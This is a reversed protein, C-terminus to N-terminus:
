WCRPELGVASQACQAGAAEVDPVKGGPATSFQLVFERTTFRRRATYGLEASEVCTNELSVYWIVSYSQPATTNTVNTGAIGFFTGDPSPPPPPGQSPARPPFFITRPTASPSSSPFIQTPAYTENRPFVLDFELPFPEPAAAVSPPLLLLAGLSALLSLHM